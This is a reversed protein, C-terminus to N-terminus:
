NAHLNGSQELLIARVPSADLGKLKLPLAILTYLGEPVETLVLGELIALDKEFIKKHIPLDKSDAADVSPTDIGVLKVGKQSLGEIIESNLCAFDDRWQNPNEFTRTKFLVRPALIRYKAINFGASMEIVQCKGMYLNLNRQDIGEGKPHYHNPGDAHAGLHVTTTISSLILNDGSTFDMSRDVAFAQDGPFVAIEPSILPSIDYFKLGM